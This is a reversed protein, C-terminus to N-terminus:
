DNRTSHFSSKSCCHTASVSKNIMLNYWIQCMQKHTTPQPRNMHKQLNRVRCHYLDTKQWALPLELGSTNKTWSRTGEKNTPQNTPQIIEKMKASTEERNAIKLCSERGLIASRHVTALYRNSYGHEVKIFSEMLFVTPTAWKIDVSKSHSAFPSPGKPEWSPIWWILSRQLIMAASISVRKRSETCFRLLHSAHCCRAHWLRTALLSQHNPEKHLNLNESHQPWSQCLNRLQIELLLCQMVGHRIHRFQRRYVLQKDLMTVPGGWLPVRDPLDSQM